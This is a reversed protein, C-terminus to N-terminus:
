KAYIEIQQKLKKCKKGSLIKNFTKLSLGIKKRLDTKSLLYNSSMGDIVVNFHRKSSNRLTPNEKGKLPSEKGIKSLSLKEKHNDSFKLGKWARVPNKFKAVSLAKRHTISKPKGLSADSMKKKTEISHKGKSGNCERTNLMIFGLDRYNMWYLNEYRDMVEQSVDLPLEHIIEFKFRKPHYKRLSNYLKPGISNIRLQEYDKWRDYIDWSQGIYIKGVPSTLKYIGITKM